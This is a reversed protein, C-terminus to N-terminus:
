EEKEEQDAEKIIARAKQKQLGYVYKMTKAAQTKDIQGGEILDDLYGKLKSLEAESLQNNQAHDILEAKKEKTVSMNSERVFRNVVPMESTKLPEGEIANASTKLVRTMFAGLGTFTSEYIHQLTEPSVEIAGEHAVDGGTFDSFARATNVFIAPTNPFYNRSDTIKDDEKYIRQGFANTNTKLQVLPAYNGAIQQEIPASGGTPSFSDFMSLTVNKAFEQPSMGFKGESTVYKQLAYVSKGVYYPWNMRRSMPISVPASVGTPILINRQKRWEPIQWYCDEPDEDCDSLFDNMLAEAYGAIAIGATVKRGTKSRVFWTITGYAGQAAANAFAKWANLYPANNGGKEFDVTADRSLLASKEKSLGSDLAAKYVMVRTAVELTEAVKQGGRLIQKVQAVSLKKDYNEFNKLTAASQDQIGIQKSFTVKGGEKEWEKAIEGWEGKGSFIQSVIKIYGKPTFNKAFKKVIGKKDEGSLYVAADQSDVIANTLIFEPNALTAYFRTWTTVSQLYKLAAPPDLKEFVKKMGPDRLIIYSKKGSEWFPIGDKPPFREISAVVAGNSNTIQEYTAPKVEWMEANPNERIFNAMRINAMNEAGKVVSYEMDQISQLVPNFRTTFDMEAAGKSRFLDRGSKGSAAFTQEDKEEGMEAELDIKLPVYNDYAGRISEYEDETLIGSEYKFDLIKDIVTDKFEQAFGEYKDTDGDAEVQKIIEAAQEDTMGSGGDPMLVYESNRQNLIDDLEKELEARNETSKARSIDQNLQYVKGEFAQQRQAANKANREPAHKAYLYMGFKNIDIKAKSIRDFFSGKIFEVDGLGKRIENIKAWARGKSLRYGSLADMEEILPKIANKQAQELRQFKDVWKQKRAQWLTQSPLEFQDDAEKKDSFISVPKIAGSAVAVETKKAEIQSKAAIYKKEINERAADTTANLIEVDTQEDLARRAEDFDGNNDAILKTAIQEGEGKFISDNEQRRMFQIVREKVPGSIGTQANVFDEAQQMTIENNRIKQLLVNAVETNKESLPQRRVKRERIEDPTLPFTMGEGLSERFKPEDWKKDLVRDNIFDVAKQIADQLQAGSEIERAAMELAANHVDTPIGNTKISYLLGSASLQSGTIEPTADGNIIASLGSEINKYQNLGFVNKISKVLAEYWAKAKQIWGKTKPTEAQKRFIESANVAWWESPNFYQYYEQGIAPLYKKMIDEMAIVNKSDPEVQREIAIGLYLLAKTITDRKKPDDTKALEKQLSSIKKNTQTMWEDLIGDRVDEPLFKETHHLIEHLATIDQAGKFVKVFQTAPNYFGQLTSEKTPETISIALDQFLSPNSRVMDIALDAGEQSITGNRAANSLKEVIWNAGRELSLNSRLERKDERYKKRIDALKAKAEVLDQGTLGSLINRIASQINKNGKEEQRNLKNETRTVNSYAKRLSELMGELEEQYADKEAARDFAGITNASISYNIEDKTPKPIKRSRIDAAMIKASLLKHKQEALTRKKVMQQWAKLKIKYEDTNTKNRRGMDALADEAKPIKVNYDNIASVVESLQQDLTNQVPVATETVAEVVPESTTTGTDAIADQGEGLTEQAVGLNDVTEQQPEIKGEAILQEYDRELQERTEYENNLLQLEADSLAKAEQEQVTKIISPTLDFGTLERFRDAAAESTKNLFTRTADKMGGPFRDIFEVLDQETIDLGSHNSIEQAIQDLSAGKVSMYSKGKARNMNNRDGFRNYSDNTTKFGGFDLIANEISSLPTVDPEQRQYLEVLEVPSNTTTAVQIDLDEDNLGEVDKLLVAREGTTFDYQQAAEQIASRKTTAPVEEGTKANVVRLGSKSDYLVRQNGSQTTYDVQPRQVQFQGESRETSNSSNTESQASINKKPSNDNISQLIKTANKQFDDLTSDINNSAASDINASENFRKADYIQRSNPVGNPFTENLIKAWKQLIPYGYQNAIQEESGKNIWGDDGIGFHVYWKGSPVNKKGAQGTSRYFPVKANGINVIIMERGYYNVSNAPGGETNIPSILNNKSLQGLRDDEDSSKSISSIIDSSPTSFIDIHSPETLSGADQEEVNIPEVINGEEEVFLNPTDKLSTIDDTSIELVSSPSAATTIDSGGEANLVNQGEQRGAEQTENNQGNDPINLPSSIDNSQEGANALIESRQARLDEVQKGMVVAQAEDDVTAIKNSIIAEQLKNNAYEQKQPETLPQENVVSVEPVSNKVINSITNVVQIRENAQNQDLQGDRQQRNIEEIYASPNKGVEYMLGKAMPGQQRAQIVAGAGVPLMASVAGMVGQEWAQQNYNSNAAKEPAFWMDGVAQGYVTAAEELGEKGSDAAWQKVADTVQSVVKSKDLSKLGNKAVDDILARGASTGSFIKDTIKFDPLIQEAAVEAGTYMLALAVRNEEPINDPTQAYNRDYGTTFQFAASGIRNAVNANQMGAGMLRSGLMQGGASMAAIQSIGDTVATAITGPNVNWRGSKDDSLTMLYNPSSPNTEVRTRDGVMTAASPDEGGFYKGFSSNDYWNQKYEADVQEPTKGDLKGGVRRYVFEFPAAILNKVIGSGIESVVSGKVKIDEPTIDQLDSAPIGLETGIRQIDEPTAVYGTVAQAFGGANKFMQNSIAESIQQKRYEPNEDILKRGYNQSKAELQAAIETDGAAYAAKAAYQLAQYGAAGRAVRENPDEIGQALKREDRQIKDETSAIKEIERGVKYPDITTIDGNSETLQQNVVKQAALGFISNDLTAEEQAYKQDLEAVKQNYVGENPHIISESGPTINQQVPFESDIQQLDKQKEQQLLVNKAQRYMRLPETSGVPKLVQEAFNARNVGMSELAGWAQEPVKSMLNKLDQAIYESSAKVENGIAIRAGEVEQPTPAPAFIPLPENPKTTPAIGKEIFTTSTVAPAKWTNKDEAVNPIPAMGVTRQFVDTANSLDQKAVDPPIQETAAQVPESSSPDITFGEPLAAMPKNTSVPDITFGEPLVHKTSSGKPPM